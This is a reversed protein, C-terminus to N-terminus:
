RKSSKYAKALREILEAKAASTEPKGAYEAWVGDRGVSLLRVIVDNLSVTAGSGVRKELADWIEAILRLDDRLSAPFRIRLEAPKTQPEFYPMAVLQTQM